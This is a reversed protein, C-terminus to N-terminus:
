PESFMAPPCLTTGALGVAKRRPALRPLPRDTPPQMLLEYYAGFHLAAMEDQSMARHTGHPVNEAPLNSIFLEHPAGNRALVLRKVPGGDAPVIEVVVTRSDAELSWVVADTLAQRLKPETGAGRFEFLRDRFIRQSPVGAELRGGDLYVRAAVRRPLVTSATDDAGLLAPDIRGDGTLAQMDPVFRLDRWAVPDALDRPPVPWSSRGRPPKFLEVGAGERGQVRIRVEAGKLDM